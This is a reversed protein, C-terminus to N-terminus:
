RVAGADLVLALTAADLAGHLHLRLGDPREITLTPGPATSAESCAAARVSPSPLAAFADATAEARPRAEPADGRPALERWRKLTAPALTCAQAVTELPERELLRCAMARLPAPM